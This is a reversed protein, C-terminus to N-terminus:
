LIHWGCLSVIMVSPGEYEKLAENDKGTQQVDYNGYGMVALCWQDGIM